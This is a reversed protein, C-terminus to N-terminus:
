GSHLLLATFRDDLAAAREAGDTDLAHGYTGFTDM